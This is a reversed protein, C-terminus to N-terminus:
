GTAVQLNPQKQEKRAKRNRARKQQRTENPPSDPTGLSIPVQPSEPQQVSTLADSIQRMTEDIDQENTIGTTIIPESNAQKQENREVPYYDQTTTEQILTPQITEENIMQKIAEAQNPDTRAIMEITQNFIVTILTQDAHSFDDTTSKELLVRVMEAMHVLSYYQTILQLNRLHNGEAKNIKLLSFLENFNLRVM